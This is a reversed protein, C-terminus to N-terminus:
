GRRKKEIEKLTKEMYPIDWVFVEDPLGAPVPSFSEAVILYYKEHLEPHFSLYLESKQALDAYIKELSGPM